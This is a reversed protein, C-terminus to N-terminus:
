FDRFCVWCGTINFVEDYMTKEILIFDNVIECYGKNWSEIIEDTAVEETLVERMAALLNDGVIPYQKPKINISRQKHAIPMIAPLIAELQDIHAAAAYVTNTHAKTQDGKRQSTENFINKLEPHNEYMRKYFCKTIEDGREQLIPVTAKVLDITKQDLGSHTATQM